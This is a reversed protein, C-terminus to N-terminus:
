GTFNSYTENQLIYEKVVEHVFQLQDVSPIIQERYNRMDNIVQTIAVDQEIKM